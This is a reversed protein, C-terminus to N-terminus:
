QAEARAGAIDGECELLVSHNLLFRWNAAASALAKVILPRAADLDGIEALSVGLLSEADALGPNKELMARCLKIATANDGNLRAVSAQELIDGQM